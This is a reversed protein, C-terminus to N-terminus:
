SIPNEAGWVPAADAKEKWLRYHEAVGDFLVEEAEKRVAAADEIRDYAGPFYQKKQFVIRAMYTGRVLYVGRCGTTNDTPIKRSKLMDISTGDVHVLFSQLKQDHEKKQCGCSRLNSYMLVNYSVAIEKEMRM